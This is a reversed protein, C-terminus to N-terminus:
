EHGSRATKEGEMGKVVEKGYHGKWEASCRLKIFVTRISLTSRRACAGSMAGHFCGALVFAPRNFLIFLDQCLINILNRCVCRGAARRQGRSRFSRVEATHVIGTQVRAWHRFVFAEQLSLSHLKVRRDTVFIGCAFLWYWRAGCCVKNNNEATRAMSRSTRRERRECVLQSDLSLEPRGRPVIWHRPPIRRKSQWGHGPSLLRTYRFKYSFDGVSGLAVHRPTWHTTGM